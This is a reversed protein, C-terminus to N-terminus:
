SPAVAQGAPLDGLRRAREALRADIRLVVIAAAVAAACDVAAGLWWLDRLPGVSGGVFPTFFRATNLVWWIEIPPRPVRQGRPTMRAAERYGLAHEGANARPPAPPLKEPDLSRDVARFAIYPMWFSAIPIVFGWFAHSWANRGPLVGLPWAAQRLSAIWALFAVGCVTSAVSRVFFLLGAMVDASRLGDQAANAEELAGDLLCVLALLAVVVRARRHAVRLQREPGM